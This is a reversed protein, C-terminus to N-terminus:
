HHTRHRLDNQLTEHLEAWAEIPAQSNSALDKEKARGAAGVFANFEAVSAGKLSIFMMGEEDYPYFVPLLQVAEADSFEDRIKEVIHDFIVSSISVGSEESVIVAGAM